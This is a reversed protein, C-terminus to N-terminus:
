FDIQFRMALAGAWGEAAPNAPQRFILIYNWMLRSQPNIYWNLGFTTDAAQGGLVTGDNLDIWSYRVALEWAGGGRSIAHPHLEDTRCFFNAAPRVAGFVGTQRQYARHEGTLVYGTQVYFGHFLLDQPAGGGIQGNEVQAWVYESQVFWAGLSWGWEVGFLNLHEAQILGTDVFNPANVRFEPRTAFRVRRRGGSSIPNGAADLLPPNRTSFSLGLHVATEAEEDYWPNCTVRMTMAYSGDDADRGFQDSNGRFVGIATMVSQDLWTRHTMIGVNRFPVFADHVLSRELLLLHNGSTLADLSFPERFHGIRVREVWPLQTLEGYTDFFAPVGNEFGYETLWDLTEYVTGNIRLRARRYNAGDRLPGVGGPGFEVQDEAHWWGFDVHLRGGVGVRFARDASEFQLGNNWFAELPVRSPGRPAASPAADTALWSAHAPVSFKDGEIQTVSFDTLGVSRDSYVGQGELPRVLLCLGHLVIIGATLYAARAVRIPRDTALVSGAACRVPRGAANTKAAATRRVEVSVGPPM